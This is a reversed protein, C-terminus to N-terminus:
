SAVYAAQRYPRVFGVGTTLNVKELLTMQSVMERARAYAAGWDGLGQAWPSPYWPPSTQNTRAGDVVAPDSFDTANPYTTNPWQSVTLRPIAKHFTQPNM